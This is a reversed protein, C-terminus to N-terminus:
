WLEIPYEGQRILSSKHTRVKRDKIM